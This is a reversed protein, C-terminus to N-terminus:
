RFKSYILVNWHSRFKCEDIISTSCVTLRYSLSLALHILLHPTFPPWVQEDTASANIQQTPFNPSIETLQLVPSLPDFTPVHNIPVSLVTVSMQIWQSLLLNTQNWSRTFYWYYFYLFLLTSFMFTYNSSICLSTPPIRVTFSQCVTNHYFPRFREDDCMSICVQFSSLSHHAWCCSLTPLQSVSIRRLVWSIRISVVANCQHVRFTPIAFTSLRSSKFVYPIMNCCHRITGFACFSPQHQFQDHLLINITHVPNTYRHVQTRYASSVKQGAWSCNARRAPEHEM